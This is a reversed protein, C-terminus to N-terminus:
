LCSRPAGLTCIGSRNEVLNRAANNTNWIDAPYRGAGVDFNRLGRVASQPAGNVTLLPTEFPFSTPTGARGHVHASALPLYPVSPHTYASSWLYNGGVNNTRAGTETNYLGNFAPDDRTMNDPDPFNNPFDSTALGNATGPAVDFFGPVNNAAGDTFLM